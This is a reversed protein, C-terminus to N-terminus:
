PGPLRRLVARRIAPPWGAVGLRIRLSLPTDSAYVEVRPLSFRDQGPKVLGADVTFAAAYGASRVAAAVRENCEGYPYSFATPRPFGLAELAAASGILEADLEREDLEVLSRHTAGHSGVTLGRVALAKLGAEDLLALRTVGARAEWDNSAGLKSSVAFVLGPVRHHALVPSGHELLDQYADDFTVLVARAPLSGRHAIARVLDDFAIFRWGRRALTELQAAFREAPVGYERLVRDGSLDSIAHYALVVVQWPRQPRAGRLHEMAQIAFFLRNSVKGPQARSFLRIASWRVPAVLPEPLRALAGFVVAEWRSAFRRRRSLEAALEPYRAILEQDSRAVQRSRRTYTAADVDYYQHSVAAPNFAIKLGARRARVGFDLDEGGFLGGRTFSEDFGDLQEFAARAISMQGTLVDAAPVEGGATELRKRRREAWRGTVAAIATAPSEEHLPVHGVVVDAGERHSRLHEALMDPDAEMDDDLFVLLEGSAARAGANRAMAAGQNAQELVKVPFSARLARLADATGDSSGDVVVLVEFDRHQQRELAAVVQVVRERRQYTPIVISCRM